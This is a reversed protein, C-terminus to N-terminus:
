TPSTDPDPASISAVHMQFVDHAHLFSLGNAELCTHRHQHVPLYLLAMHAVNHHKM